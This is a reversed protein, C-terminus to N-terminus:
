HQAPHHQTDASKLYQLFGPDAYAEPPLTDTLLATDVEALERARLDSQVLNIVVLGAILALLPIASALRRWPTLGESGFTLSAAGGSVSVSTASRVQVSVKRRALAQVRAARLRESIDYPLDDTADSLRAAVKLGYRDQFVEILHEASNTM